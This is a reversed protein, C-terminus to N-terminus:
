QGGPGRPQRGPGGPPQQAQQQQMMQGSQPGRAGPPAGGTQARQPQGARQASMQRQALEDSLVFRLETIPVFGAASLEEEEDESEESEEQRGPTEQFLLVGSDTAQFNECQFTTGDKCIVQM